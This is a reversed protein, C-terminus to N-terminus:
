RRWQRQGNQVGNLHQLPIFIDVSMKHGDPVLFAFRESVQVVGAFSTKARELVEVVEGELRRDGPRKAYLYIRVKDGHLANRVNRPAIFIDDEFDESMLYAAGNSTMDIIGEVYAYVPKLLYKGRETEILLGELAMEELIPILSSTAEKEKLGMQKSLQRYNFARNPNRNMTKTIEERLSSKIISHLSNKKNTSM